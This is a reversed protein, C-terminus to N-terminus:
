WLIYPIYIVLRHNIEQISELITVCVRRCPLNRVVTNVHIHNREQMRETMSNWVRTHYINVLTSVPVHCKEQIPELVNLGHIMDALYNGCKKGANPKEGTHTRIHKVM